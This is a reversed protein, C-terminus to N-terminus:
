IPTMKVQKKKETERVTNPQLCVRKKPTVFIEGGRNGIIPCRNCKQLMELQSNCKDGDVTGIANDDIILPPCYIDLLCGVSLGLMWSCLNTAPSTFAALPLQAM